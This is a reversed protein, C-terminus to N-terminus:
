GGHDAGWVDVLVGFGRDLKTKHYAIDAAFYTYSGDSKVLPRDVDDGFATTRFLTQPRDEWDEVPQGKPPPLRGEYVKGQARLTALTAGILDGEPGQTLSRESFFVEHRINLAALDDRIMAMMAAIAAVRLPELWVTEPQDLLARGHAKALEAAVPVLYDGPYLGEPIAGIAEGLAERIRLHLSRALVDIQAGADNIYYERVVSKGAFELLNALADGFVAGRGHGVHMPGTPNASVYEVNVKPAAPDPAMRGFAPGEALAARWLRMLAAPKLRINIFGPGAVEAGAVDPDDALAAAIEVALQRPNAFGAKAEKAYVMAANVALDGLSAERPPEVVFRALDLDAALRGSAAIMRLIAAVRLHFEAYINLATVNKRLSIM